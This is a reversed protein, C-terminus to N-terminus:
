AYYDKLYATVVKLDSLDTYLADMRRRLLLAEEGDATRLRKRLECLRKQLAEAAARYEVSLATLDM